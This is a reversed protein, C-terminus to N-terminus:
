DELGGGVLGPDTDADSWRLAAAAQLARVHTNPRFRVCRRLWPSYATPADRWHLGRKLVFVIGNEARRDDVCPVGHSLPFHLSILRMPTKTFWIVGGM